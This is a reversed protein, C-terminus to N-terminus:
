IHILSLPIAQDRLFDPIAPNVFVGRGVDGMVPDCLYRVAPNYQRIEGVAELIVRGSDADGLYGSLM